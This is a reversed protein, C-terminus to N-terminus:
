SFIDRVFRTFNKYFGRLDSIYIGDRRRHIAERTTKELVEWLLDRDPCNMFFDLDIQFAGKFRRGGGNATIDKILENLNTNEKRTRLSADLTMRGESEDVIAAFVVVTNAQERKLLYDAVIAITDRKSHELYGIGSIVWERYVEQNRIALGIASLIERNLPSGRVLDFIENNIRPTLFHIAEYDKRGAHEYKDTDTHIGYLLATYLPEIEEDPLQPALDRIILTVMTSTSGATTDILRYEAPIDEEIKEHHDIHVACPLIDQLADVRASQHDVLIYGDYSKLKDLKKPFRIPLNLKELFQRNRDLSIETVSIIDAKVGLWQCLLKMAYSSALADPDPSGKVYILLNKHRSLIEKLNEPHYEM